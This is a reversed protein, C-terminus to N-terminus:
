GHRAEWLKPNVAYDERLRGVNEGARQFAPKLWDAETLVALALKVKEPEKLGPLRAKRRIDRGNVVEPREKLIWRALVAALRDGEPLAADGFVREAMPKFYEEMLMVAAVVAKRNIRSPPLHPAPDAAWWLHHLVLALRLVHGPAKGYASALAGSAETKAHEQRWQDFLDAADEDLPCLFPRSRGDDDAVLPLEGLRRFVNYLTNPDARRTPRRPPVKDPWLWLFRAQLGDDPSDLLDALRDPQVGGLVGVSLRPIAIPSGHKVRDIVYPRGGYAELWFARDSGGGGSYRGFAGFWGALEDRCYLIGREHAALLEGLKEPTADSAIIRARVPEAPAVASAPMTPAPRGAKVADQVEKMWLDKACHAAENATMWERHIADFDSALESELKRAAEMVPDAGPSKNSSPDGSVGMWLICPEKWGEWPSVTRANGILAAATALLPGAVYDVPCGSGEAAAGIWEALVPGFTELPLSPPARRNQRAAGMDPESWLDCPSAGEFAAKVVAATM